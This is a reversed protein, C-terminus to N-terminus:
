GIGVKPIDDWNTTYSPSRHRQRMGWAAQPTPLGFRIAGSGFRANAADITQMLAAHHPNPPPTFLDRSADQPRTLDLLLVGAKRYAFGERWCQGFGRVAAGIISPSDSTPPSLPLTLASSRQPGQGFRDTMIFTQIAAAVLGDRRLKEAARQAFLVVADQVDGRSRTAEGFTRSCCCSQRDDPDDELGHVPTGNLELVTRLGVAGMQQRVWAQPAHRLDWATTIGAEACRKAWQRGIGWVDGAPTAKLAPAIRSPDTALDCVGAASKKALHNAVKALTKSPGLGVSVPIGTWDLVTQRLAHCWAALDAVALGHLDLFCEDISYVEIRPAHEALVSMVRASLDGYLAYNSSLMVLGASKSLHRVKFAPAGMPIGLAKAENSRAIVCGDNNSLVAIPKGVLRPDFVRECSAYFNNCDVLAFTPM